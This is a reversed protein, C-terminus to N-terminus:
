CSRTSSVEFNIERNICIGVNEFEALQKLKDESPSMKNEILKAKVLEVDEYSYDDNLIKLNNQNVDFVYEDLLLGVKKRQKETAESMSLARWSDTANMTPLGLSGLVKSVEKYAEFQTGNPCNACGKYLAAEAKAIKIALNARWRQNDSHTEPIPLAVAFDYLQVGKIALAILGGDIGQNCLESVSSYLGPGIQNARARANFNMWGEGTLHNFLRDLLRRMGTPDMVADKFSKFESPSASTIDPQHLSTLPLSSMQNAFDQIGTIPELFDRLGLERLKKMVDKLTAVMDKQCSCVANTSHNTGGKSCIIHENDECYTEINL